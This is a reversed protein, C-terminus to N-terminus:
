GDHVAVPRRGPVPDSGGREALTTSALEAVLAAPSGAGAFLARQRAAGTEGARVAALQQEITAFDGNAELAPRVYELLRGVLVHQPLVQGTGPDVGDGPYGGRAAATLSAVVLATRVPRSAVGARAEALITVVLARTLGALLVADEATLGVDAIRIEVTPYKPSLRAYFYVGTADLAEGRRVAGDVSAAYATADPWDLPPNATPWRSWLPYRGSAWGSDEDHSLPSNASIALLPALWPRLGALVRVGLAPSPIGVHVHCACTGAEPLLAPYRAALARYRPEATVGPLGPLDGCPPTGSALVLCGAQGAADAVLRRLGLLQARIGDLGTHIGTATEIQFRLFEPMVAPEGDLLELVRPAALAVGGTAPDALVFEEEVGLTLDNREPLSLRVHM